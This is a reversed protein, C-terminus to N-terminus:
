MLLIPANFPPLSLSPTHSVVASRPVRPEFVNCFELLKKMYYLCLLQEEDSTLMQCGKEAAAKAHQFTRVASCESFCTRLKNNPRASVVKERYAHNASRRLTEVEEESRFLWHHRQSSSHFM